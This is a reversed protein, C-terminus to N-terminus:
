SMMTRYVFIDNETQLKCIEVMRMWIWLKATHHMWLVKIINKQSIKTNCWVFKVIRILSHSEEYLIPKYFLQWTDSRQTRQTDTKSRYQPTVRIIEFQLTYFSFSIFSLPPANTCQCSFLSLFFLRLLFISM